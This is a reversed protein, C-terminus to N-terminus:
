FLDDLTEGSEELSIKVKSAISEVVSLYTKDFMLNYDIYKEGDPYLFRKPFGIVNENYFPNPTKMYLFKLKCNDDFPKTDLKGEHERLYRNAVLAARVQIPTGKKCLDGDAWKSLNNASRPFAIEEPKMKYFNSKVERIYDPLADGKMMKILTTKLYEKVIKPTSSRIIELGTIKLKPEPYRVGEEDVVLAAYRSPASILFHSCIKERKLILQCNDTNLYECLDKITKDIIPALERKYFDDIDEVDDVIGELSILCSDTHTFQLTNFKSYKEELYKEVANSASRIALQGSLTISNALRPSYLRCSKEALIGYGSNSLLKIAQEFTSLNSIENSLKIKDEESGKFTQYEKDLQIKKGKIVDRTNTLREFLSPYFGVKDKRYSWGSGTLITNEGCPIEKKFFREDIKDKRVDIYSDDIITDPSINLTRSLAPYLGKYDLSIVNRTVKPIIDTKIHGGAVHAESEKSKPSVCINKSHLDDYIFNDWTVVPSTINQYNSKTFYAQFIITEIIKRKANIKSLLDTDTINYEVYKQPNQIRLEELNDYEEYNVKDEGLEVGAVFGLTNTEYKKINKQYVAAFDVLSIGDITCYYNDDHGGQDNMKRVYKCSVRGRIPSLERVEDEGLVNTMRTILYPDDYGGKNFGNYSVLVDPQLKKFIKIVTRLLTEETDCFKYNVKGTIKLSMQEPYFKETSVVYYEDKFYDKFTIATIAGKAEQPPSFKGTEPDVTNEIDYFIVKVKTVDFKIENPYKEVIFQTIPSIDDYLDIVDGYAKKYDNFGKINEFTKIEIPKDHISKHTPNNNSVFGLHPQFDEEYIFKGEDNYGIHYLKNRHICVNTYFSM